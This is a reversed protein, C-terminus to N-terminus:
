DGAALRPAEDQLPEEIEFLKEAVFSQETFVQFNFFQKPTDNKQFHISFSCYFGHITTILYAHVSCHLDMEHLIAEAFKKTQWFCDVSGHLVAGALMVIEEIKEIHYVLTERDLKTHIVITNNPEHCQLRSRYDKM